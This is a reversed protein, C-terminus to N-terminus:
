SKLYHLRLIERRQNAISDLILGCAFSLFGMVLLGICLVASPIKYVYGTALFEQTVKIGLYLGSTILISSIISFLLFPRFDKFLNFMRLGIKFGDKFTSLKSQTGAIRDFFDTEIEKVPLKLNLAYVSLETEIDFGSSIAPFSKVLRRSFVRYGSFIDKFNSQFLIKLAFNFLQNGFKHGTRHATETKEVRAGIVMDLEEHVHTDVLERARSFDYTGDGDVMLYIDADIDSFMRRVVYGKGQRPEFKVIAGARKAEATTNDNSNNDYVYIEADPLQSKFDKVVKYIAKGENYCPILVAIKSM